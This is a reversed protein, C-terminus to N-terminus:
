TNRGQKIETTKAQYGNIYAFIQHFLQRKTTLQIITDVGGGINIMQHLGFSSYAQELHYNGVNGRLKNDQKSWPATPNCTIKNLYDIRNMLMKLTINM